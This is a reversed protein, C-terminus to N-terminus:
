VVEAELPEVGLIEDGAYTMHDLNFSPFQRVIRLSTESMKIPKASRIRHERVSDAGRGLEEARNRAKEHYKPFLEQAKALVAAVFEPVSQAAPHEEDYVVLFSVDIPADASAQTEAVRWSHLAERAEPNKKGERRLADELANGITAVFDNAFAVRSYRRACWQAFSRLEEDTNCLQEPKAHPLLTKEFQIRRTGNAVLRNEEDFVYFRSSNLRPLEKKPPWKELPIAEVLPEDASVIDCRQSVLVMQTGKKKIEFILSFPGQGHTAEHAETTLAEQHSALFLDVRWDIVSGQDWGDDELRKVLAQRQAEDLM